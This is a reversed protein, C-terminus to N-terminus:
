QLFLKFARQKSFRICGRSAEFRTRLMISSFNTVPYVQISVNQELSGTQGLVRCKDHSNVIWLIQFDGGHNNTKHECSTAKM